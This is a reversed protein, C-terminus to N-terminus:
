VARFSKPLILNMGWKIYCSKKKCEPCLFRNDINEREVEIEFNEDCEECVVDYKIKDQAVM